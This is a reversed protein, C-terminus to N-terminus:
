AARKVLSFTIPAWHPKKYKRNSKAVPFNPVRGDILYTLPLTSSPYIAGLDTLEILASICEESVGVWFVINSDRNIYAFEGNLYPLYQLLEVFTLGNGRWKILDPIDIKPNGTPEFGSM